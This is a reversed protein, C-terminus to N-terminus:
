TNKQPKKHPPTVANGFDIGPIHPFRQPAHIRLRKHRSSVGSLLTVDNRRVGFSDALFTQLHRNAKGDVPPASIRIKLSQGHLGAFADDRAGPQLHCTLVLDGDQWRVPSDDGAM